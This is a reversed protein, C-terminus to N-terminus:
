DAANQKMERNGM